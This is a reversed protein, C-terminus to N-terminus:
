ELGRSCATKCMRGGGKKQDYDFRYQYTHYTLEFMNDLNLIVVANVDAQTPQTCGQVDVVFNLDLAIGEVVQATASTVSALSISTSPSNGHCPISDNLLGIAIDIGCMVMTDGTPDSVAEADVTMSDITPSSVNGSRSNPLVPTGFVFILDGRRIRFYGGEGWSRGWSNKVVWFDIGSGTTGYDVIEVAHRRRDTNADFTFVGCQYDHKFRRSSRMGALVPGTALAEIVEKEQLQRYSHLRLDGPQFPMRKDRCSTPCFRGTPNTLKFLRYLRYGALRYPACSDTVAGLTQFIQFGDSLRAGCCGNRRRLYATPHQSSLQSTRRRTAISRHDTYTHAAAFAWCSGCKGQSQPRSLLGSARRRLTDFATLGTRTCKAERRGDQWSKSANASRNSLFADWRPCRKAIGAEVVLNGEAVYVVVCALLLIALFVQVRLM